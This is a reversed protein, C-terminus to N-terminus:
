CHAANIRTYNFVTSNESVLSVSQKKSLVFSDTSETEDNLLYTTAVSIWVHM